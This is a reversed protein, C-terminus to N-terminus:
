SSMMKSIMLTTMSVHEKEIWNLKTIDYEDELKKPNFTWEEIVEFLEMKSIREDDDLKFEHKDCDVIAKGYILNGNISKFLGINIIHHDHTQFFYSEGFKSSLKNLFHIMQELRSEHNKLSMYHEFSDFALDMINSGGLVVFEGVPSSIVLNESVIFHNIGEQWEISKGTFNLFNSVEKRSNSKIVFWETNTDWTNM